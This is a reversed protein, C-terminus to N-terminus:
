QTIYLLVSEDDSKNIFHRRNKKKHPTGLRSSMKSEILDTKYEGIVNRNSKINQNVQNFTM